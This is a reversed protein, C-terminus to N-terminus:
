ESKLFRPNNTPEPTISAPHLVRTACRSFCDPICQVTLPASLITARRQLIRLLRHSSKQSCRAAAQFRVWLNTACGARLRASIARAFQPREKHVPKDKLMYQGPKLDSSDNHSLIPWGEEDRLERLRRSYQVAGDAAVQLEHSEIVRGTNALLFQRIKEKSSIRGM